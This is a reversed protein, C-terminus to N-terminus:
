RLGGMAQEVEAEDVEGAQLRALLEVIAEKEDLPIRPVPKDPKLKFAQDIKQKNGIAAIISGSGAQCILELARIGTEADMMKMGLYTTYFVSENEPITFGGDQWLPWNVSITRGKRTGQAAAENRRRAYRDLFSNAMAYYGVGLDGLEVSISSFLILGDLDFDASFLDLYILGQVKARMIELGQTRDAETVPLEGGQGACHLIGNLGGFEKRIHEMIRQVDGAGALDGQLYCGEGGLQRLETLFTDTRESAPQRGTCILTARYARALYRALIMGLAGTGGPILYIGGERLVISDAAGPYSGGPAFPRIRRVMRQDGTYRIDAHGTDAASFLEQALRNQYDKAVMAQSDAAVSIIQFRHHLPVISKSFSALLEHPASFGGQAEPYAFLLKVPQQGYVELFAKFLAVVSLVGEELMQTLMPEVKDECLAALPLPAATGAWQHLVHTPRFGSDRLEKLLRVYDGERQPNMAIQDGQRERYEDDAAIWICTGAGGPLRGAGGASSFVLVNRPEAAMAPVLAEQEYVPAYYFVEEESHNDSPKGTYPRVIFDEIRVLERGAPDLIAIDFIHLGQHDEDAEEKVKTYVYCDAPIPAFIEISGVSFPIHTARGAEDRGAAVSRVAGDFLAPHLVFEPLGARYDENLSLRALTEERGSLVEETVQFSPGYSFGIDRFIHQYCEQKDKRGPCRRKIADLDFSRSTVAAPGGEFELIGRAHVVRGSGDQSFIEYQVDDAAPELVIDLEQVAETMVVPKLWLVDRVRCVAAEAALEGAARAMEIYAVGPLLMQDAVIHDRLYFLDPTLRKRFRQERLTSINVDVLPHLPRLASQIDPQPHGAALGHVATAAPGPSELWYRERAFPYLPLSVKQPKGGTFLHTWDIQTGLVWLKALRELQQKRILAALYATDEPDNGLIVAGNGSAAATNSRHVGEPVVGAVLSQLASRLEDLSSVTLALREEMEERGTSLTYAINALSYEGALPVELFRYLEQVKEMLREPNKASLIILRSGAPEAAAQVPIYEEAILHVNSGGAGFSSIGARRTGGSGADQEWPELSRQVYFPTDGFHIGSNLEDAHISPVLTRHKMQLMVKALSAIGAASELHGINSKVSSISCFQKADTYKSFANSLGAIEIPDGLPTGTGHAELSTITRPHVGSKRLAESIAAAQAAPNPVTYGSTKGGSNMASGKIVGYIHDGDEIARSLPKLLVAGVGESAVYGDGGEGFARCKGESSAFRQSCLFVYKNRHITVNVGGALAAESEGSRISECALHIATLSSSCMTDVALSPGQFNFLYSVRNAISAFSSNPATLQGSDYGETGILQYHGYMVGVFVGVRSRALKERTYGADEVTHYACELFLREQPDTLQADRPTMQFFLPDFKDVDEIFGGYKTYIKGRKGKEADYDRTYDWRGAPIETICDRGERLNDWLESINGAMPFRGDLGIVAIDMAGNVATSGTHLVANVTEPMFRGTKQPEEAVLGPPKVTGSRQKLELKFLSILQASYHGTLYAALSEVTNHEYFLTTKLGSFERQLSENLELIMISDLGFSDLPSTISIRERSIGLTKALLRLLYAHTQELLEGNDSAIGAPQAQEAARGGAVAESSGLRRAIKQPDGYGIYAQVPEEKLVAELIDLGARSSLLHMGYHDALVQQQAAPLQYRGSEWLPWNISVTKGQRRGQGALLDRYAAYRDMFSNAAAYSGAGMDGIQVSTSSFLIFLELAEDKSALDLNLTGNVKPSLIRAFGSKSSEAAKVTEGTGACHLIGNITGFHSKTHGILRLVSDMDGVDTQLYLVEAGLEALQALKTQVSADLPQRGALVLRAQVAAALEAAVLMGLAGTGGTIIYVGGRVFRSAEAQHLMTRPLMKRVYRVNGEYRVETGNALQPRLWEQILQGAAQMLSEAELRVLSIQFLPHDAAISHAFGAAMENLPQSLDEVDKYAYLCRIGTGPKLAASAQLLHLLSYLGLDMRTELSELLADQWSGAGNSRDLNWGHVIHRLETGEAQVAELLRLYDAAKGADIVYETSSLRAYGTGATVGICREPTIGYLAAQTRVAATLATSGFVLAASLGISGSAAGTPSATEVWEPSYLTVAASPTPAAAPSSNYQKISFGSLRVAERGELDTICINYKRTGEDDTGATGEVPRAYAYCHQPVSDLLEIRDLAFPVRLRLDQEGRSGAWSLSRVAGDLISPHLVYDAYGPELPEPLMIEALGEEQSCYAAETVRFSPGYDFGVAKFIHGYCEERNFVSTSRQKIETIQLKGAAAPMDQLVIGSSHIIRQDGDESFVRFELQGQTDLRFSTYIDQREAELEVAKIWRVDQLGTVPSIGALGAAARVLELYAVGPLLVKGGVVHDKLFFQDPHLVTRFKEEQMTSVNSDVMPHLVAPAAGATASLKPAIREGHKRVWYVERAFPYVPLPIRRGKRDAYLCTWDVSEGSVWRQALEPLEMSTLKGSKNAALTSEGAPQAPIQGWYMGYAEEPQHLLRHLTDILQEKDSATCALREAMEERGTQLTFAINHLSLEEWDAHATLYSHLQQAQQLLQLRSRASLVILNGEGNGPAGATVAAGSPTYEELVVHANVGGFGFSSVGARRPAGDLPTWAQTRDVIYFPSHELEIYPNLQQFHVNGPLSKHKMALVVKLIGAIGAAAELHGINTKVAGIGCYNERTVPLGHRRYLEAFAKKLANIEVPDGLSTGTGHAEIYSITDPSIGAKEYAEVLVEAQAKPNPVTLSSVKGGHNVASGKIVAYIYDGDAEAQSLRKLLVAGTGEGRVYGNARQDFTRCRGDPSLMGARSFSIHLTPAAMVNVGGAIAQECDGSLISEVARHVAVLSSSCATDVPESPGRFNFLYSIRNALVCHSSGTSSYAEIEIGNDQLLTSYDNTSVGAFLGVKRGALTSAKYGADELVSWVTELFIRQQPDMLDAERPNIGFFGPDFKDVDPMFGGWGSVPKGPVSGQLRNLECADWRDVPIESILDQQQRLQEWFVELNASQPLMGSIGIIAVPERMGSGAPEAQLPKWTRRAKPVVAATVPGPKDNVAAAQAAVPHVAEALEEAYTEALYASLARVTPYEFFVAPTMRVHLTDNIANAADTFTLSSMGYEGLDQDPHIIAADLKMLRSLVSTIKQQTLELIRAANAALGITDRVGAVGAGSHAAELGLIGSIKKRSAQLTLLQPVEANLIAELGRLGAETELPKLGATNKFFLLTEEGVSMGGDKWLPWNISVSRGYRQGASELENRYVMYRDMYANAYAYDSQGVNGTVAAISSFAAIFDLKDEATARDLQVLGQIKAGLVEDAEGAEKVRILADRTVGAAHIIGHLRGFRSRVEAVASAAAPEQSLDAQVYLVEGGLNHLRAIQQELEPRLDSRGILALRAQYKVALHEAVMLGLKGLGGTILYVGQPRLINRSAVQEPLAIEKLTYVYRKGQKYQVELEGSRVEAAIMRATEPGSAQGTFLTSFHLRSYELKLTQNFARLAGLAPPVPAAAEGGRYLQIVRSHRNDQVAILAQALYLQRRYVAAAAEMDAAPAYDEPQEYVLTELTCGCSRLDCLLRVYDEPREPNMRYCGTGDQHYETGYEVVYLRGEPAHISGNIFAQELGSQAPFLVLDGQVASDAAGREGQEQWEYTFCMDEYHQKRGQHFVKLVFRTFRLLVRGQRDALVVDFELDGGDNGSARKTVYSVCDAPLRGFIELSDFSYPLAATGELKGHASILGIVAELVGDTVTPHLTYAEFGERLLAPLEIFALAETEGTLLETISQFSPGLMLQHQRFRDYVEAGSIGTKGQRLRALDITQPPPGSAGAETYSISGQSHVITDGASKSTIEYELEAGSKGPYLHIQVTRSAEGEELQIPHAWVVGDLRLIATGPLSAAAAACAMELQVVGPLLKHGSVIHDRLYFVEASLEKSFIQEHVTSQNSDLVPGLPAAAIGASAASDGAATHLELWHKQRQFPYTPLPIKHYPRGNYLVKWDCNCGELYLQACEELVKRSFAAPSAGNSHALGAIRDLRYQDGPDATRRRLEGSATDKHAALRNLTRLLESELEQLDAAVLAVRETFHSRGISLTYAINGPDTIRGATDSLWEMLDATRRALGDRTKASLLFLYSPRDGSYNGIKSM